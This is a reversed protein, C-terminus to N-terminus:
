SQTILQEIEKIQNFNGVFLPTRQHINTPIIDLINQQGNSAYGGAQEALFAFPIGEYMLRLKGEPKKKDAPYLYIGGKLLNRHFDAVLSGIYRATPPHPLSKLEEIYNAFSSSWSPSYSDNISYIELQDPITINPHSLLYEGLSLDLTFGHVGQGTSYVLMTSAGYVMYGAAVAKNGPQLYDNPELPWKGVPKEFVVFNTGISVNVDINSSGDVPDVYVIFRGQQQHLQDDFIVLEESEETGVATVYPSQRLLEIFITNAYEDLKQQEEGQVNVVQNSGLYSTLGAKNIERSLVKSALILQNLVQSLHETSQDHQQLLHNAVNILPKM